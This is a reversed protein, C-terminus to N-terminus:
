VPCVMEHSQVYMTALPLFPIEANPYGPSPTPAQIILSVGTEKPYDRLNSVM